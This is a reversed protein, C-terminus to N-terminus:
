CPGPNLGYSQLNFLVDNESYERRGQERLTSQSFLTRWNFASPFPSLSGQLNVAWVWQTQSIQTGQFWQSPCFNRHGSLHCSQSLLHFCGPQAAKLAPVWNQQPFHATGLRCSSLACPEVDTGTRSTSSRSGPSSPFTAASLWVLDPHLLVSVMAVLVM